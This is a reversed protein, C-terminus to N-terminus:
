NKIKAIKMTTIALLATKNEKIIFLVTYMKMNPRKFITKKHFTWEFIKGMKLFQIGRMRKDIGKSAVQM